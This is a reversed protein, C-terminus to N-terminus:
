QWVIGNPLPGQVDALAKCHALHVTGVRGNLAGSSHTVTVQGRLTDIATVTATTPAAGPHFRINISDGVNIPLSM